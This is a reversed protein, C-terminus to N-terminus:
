RSHPLGIVQVPVHARELRGNGLQGARGEGWCWVEAGARTAACAFHEGVSIQVAPALGPVRRRDSRDGCEVAGSRRLLCVDDEDMAVQTVDSPGDLVSPPDGADLALGCVVRGGTLVCLGADNIALGEARGAWARPELRLSDFSSREFSWCQVGGARDRACGLMRRAVLEVAGTLGPVPAPARGGGWCMAAGSRLVACAARDITAVGVAESIGPVPTASPQEGHGSLAEGWCLVAGSSLVACVTDDGVSVQVAGRTGPAPAATSKPDSTVGRGLEGDNNEGWCHVAHGPAAACATDDGASVQWTAGSSSSPPPQALAVVGLIWALTM